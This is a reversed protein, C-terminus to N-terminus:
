LGLKEEFEKLERKSMGFHEALAGPERFDEVMDLWNEKNILQKIIMMEMRSFNKAEFIYDNFAECAVPLRQEVLQFMADAYDRIELQAHKDRRLKCYHFFNHLDIKWICETYNSVPLVTRALERSLDHENLLEKYIAYSDDCSQGMVDQIKEENALTEFENRGQKNDKSQTAIHSGFPVYFEDSMESYRGSYENMTSMRHRVHQRMVFIPMKLHFRLEVMEIPTTHKHNILYRLLNRNDSVSKTGEGYSIRACEPPTNDDGMVDVLGVFGHEYMPIYNVDNM